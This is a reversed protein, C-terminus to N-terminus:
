GWGARLVTYFLETTLGNLPRRIMLDLLVKLLLRMTVIYGLILGRNATPM